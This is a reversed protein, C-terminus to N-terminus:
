RTSKYYKIIEERTCRAYMENKVVAAYVAEFDPLVSQLTKVMASFGEEIGEELGEARGKKEAKKLGKRESKVGRRRCMMDRLTRM